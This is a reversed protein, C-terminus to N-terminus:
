PTAARRSSLLFHPTKGNQHLSHIAEPLTEWRWAGSVRCPCKSQSVAVVRHPCLACRRCLNAPGQGQQGGPVVPLLLQGLGEGAPRAPWHTGPQEEQGQERTNMSGRPNLEWCLGPSEGEAGLWLAAWFPRLLWARGMERRKKKGNKTEAFSTGHCLMLGRACAEELPTAAEWLGKEGWM